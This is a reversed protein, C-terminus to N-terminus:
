VSHVMFIDKAPNLLGRRIQKENRESIGFLFTQIWRWRLGAQLNRNGDTNTSGQVHDSAAKLACWRPYLLTLHFPEKAM